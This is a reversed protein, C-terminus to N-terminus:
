AAALTARSGTQLLTMRRGRSGPWRAPLHEMEDMVENVHAIPGNFPKRAELVLAALRRGNEAAETLEHYEGSSLHLESM